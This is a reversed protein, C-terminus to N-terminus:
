EKRDRRQQKQKVWLTLLQASAHPIEVADREWRSVTIVHVHLREALETQKLGLVKRCLKIAAGTV